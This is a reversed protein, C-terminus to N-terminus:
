LHDVDGVYIEESECCVEGECLFDIGDCRRGGGGLVHCEYGVVVDKCVFDESDVGRFLEDGVQGPIGKVFRDTLLIDM